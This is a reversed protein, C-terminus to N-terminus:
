TSGLNILVIIYAEKTEV